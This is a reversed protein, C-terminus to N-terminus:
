LVVWLLKCQKSSTNKDLKYIRIIKTSKVLLWLRFKYFITVSISIYHYCMNGHPYVAAAVM